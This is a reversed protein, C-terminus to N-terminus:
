ELRETEEGNFVLTYVEKESDGNPLFTTTGTPGEFGELGLLGDRIAQRAEEPATEGDIEADEAVQRIM